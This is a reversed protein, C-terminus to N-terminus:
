IRQEDMFSRLISFTLPSTESIQAPFPGGDAAKKVPPALPKWFQFPEIDVVVRGNQNELGVLWFHSM